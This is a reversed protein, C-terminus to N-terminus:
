AVAPQEQSIFQFRVVPSGNVLAPSLFHDLPRVSMPLGDRPYLRVYVVMVEETESHRALGLVLYHNGKYHRYVGCPLTPSTPKFAPQNM